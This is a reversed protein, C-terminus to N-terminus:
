VQLRQVKSFTSEPSIIYWDLNALDDEVKYKLQEELEQSDSLVLSADSDIGLNQRANENEYRELYDLGGKMHAAARLKGWLQRVRAKKEEKTLDTFQRRSKPKKLCCFVKNKHEGATLSPQPDETKQQAGNLIEKFERPTRPTQM